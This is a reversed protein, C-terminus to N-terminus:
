EASEDTSTKSDKALPGSNLIRFLIEAAQAYNLTSSAHSAPIACKEAAQTCALAAKLVQERTEKRQEKTM